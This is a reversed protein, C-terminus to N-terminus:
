EYSNQSRMILIEFVLCCVALSSPLLSDLISNPLCFLMISASISLPCSYPLFLLHDRPIWHCMIRLTEPDAQLVDRIYLAVCKTLLAFRNIHVCVDIHVYVDIFSLLSNCFQWRTFGFETCSWAVPFSVFLWSSIADWRFNLSVPILLCCM